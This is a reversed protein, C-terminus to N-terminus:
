ALARRGDAPTQPLGNRLLRLVVQCAAKATLGQERWTRYAWISTLNCLIAALEAPSFEESLVGEQQLTRALEELYRYLMRRKRRLLTEIRSELGVAEQLLVQLVREYRTAVSLQYEVLAVLKGLGDPPAGVRAKLEAFYVQFGEQVAFDLLAEKSQVYLYITGKSVGVHQAIDELTTGHFGKTSFLLVAAEFIQRKRLAKHRPDKRSLRNRLQSAM